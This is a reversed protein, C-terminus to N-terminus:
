SPISENLATAMKLCLEDLIEPLNMDGGMPSFMVDDLRQRIESLRPTGAGAEELIRLTRRAADTCRYIGYDAPEEVLGRGSSLLYAALLAIEKHLQAQPM